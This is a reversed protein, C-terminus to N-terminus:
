CFLGVFCRSAKGQCSIERAFLAGCCFTKKEKQLFDMKCVSGWLIYCEGDAFRRKKEKRKKEKRKKEKRKKEKTDKSFVSAPHSETAIYQMINCHPAAQQLTPCRTASHTAPYQVNCREQLLCQNPTDKQQLIICHTATHQVTRCLSLPKNAASVPPTDRQQLTNCHTASHTASHTALQMEAAFSVQPTDKQQLTPCRTASHTASLTALQM